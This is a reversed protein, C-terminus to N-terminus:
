ELWFRRVHSYRRAAQETDDETVLAAEIDHAGVGAIM